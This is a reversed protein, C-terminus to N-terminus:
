QHADLIQAHHYIHSPMFSQIFYYSHDYGDHMRINLAQGAQECAKAFIHPKLQEDLFQDGKGQDILIEPQGGRSQAAILVSADHKKWAERDEGIYAKFAKEGWPVQSPAVIPSFASISKYIEPYKLGLTLAGHGGMSHGSIGQAEANLPFEKCVLAQLERVIYSEMQYHEAWPAKTADIYFGAGQGLDYADDNAVAEGRPSTDPAIIALGAAAASQYAGGKTTFNEHNCTLGSLFTVFPVDGNEAQPPLFVSFRMACSLASSEHEWVSLEGGFCRHTEIQKM